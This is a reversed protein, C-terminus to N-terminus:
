RGSRERAYTAGLATAAPAYNPPRAKVSQSVASRAAATGYAKPLGSLEIATQALRSQLGFAGFLRQVFDKAFSAATYGSGSANPPKYAITELARVFERITTEEAPTYLSRVVSQQQSLASKINNMVAQPGLMDGNRGQVLRVWYALRVDDWTSKAVDAPLFRDLASKMNTLAGVSGQDVGRSGVSGFLQNIVGEPSDAKDMVAALRKAAPTAKGALSPAFVERMEKTFGRAIKLQAAVGANGALLNQAAAADIWDNFGDYISSAARADEPTSAGRSM